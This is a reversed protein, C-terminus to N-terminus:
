VFRMACLPLQTSGFSRASISYRAFDASPFASVLEELAHPLIQSPHRRSRQIAAALAFLFTRSTTRLM